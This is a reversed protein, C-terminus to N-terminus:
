DNAKDEFWDPELGLRLSLNKAALKGFTKKGRMIMSLNGQSIHSKKAFLTASGAEEVLNILKRIRPDLIANIDVTSKRGTKTSYNEMEKVQSFDLESIDERSYIAVLAGDIKPGSIPLVNLEALKESLNTANLDHLKALAGVLIYNDNFEEVSSKSILHRIEVSESVLHIINRDILDAVVAHYTNLMESVQKSSMCENPIFFRKQYAITENYQVSLGHLNNSGNSFLTLKGARIREIIKIIDQSLFSVLTNGCSQEIPIAFSHIESLLSNLEFLSVLRTAGFFSKHNKESFTKSSIMEAKILRRLIFGSMGAAKAALETPIECLDDCEVHKSTFTTPNESLKLTVGLAKLRDVLIKHANPLYPWKKRFQERQISIFNSLKTKSSAPVWIKSIVRRIEDASMLQPSYRHRSRLSSSSSLYLVTMLRELIINLNTKNNQEYEILSDRIVRSSSIELQTAGSSFLTEYCNLCYGTLPQTTSLPSLCSKCTDILQLEHEPCATVLSLMWFRQHTGNEVMCKPCIKWRNISLHSDTNSGPKAIPLNLIAKKLRSEKCELLESVQKFDIKGKSIRLMDTDSIGDRGVKVGFNSAVTALDTYSNTTVIRSILGPLSEGDRPLCPVPYNM